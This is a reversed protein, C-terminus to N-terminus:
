TTQFRYTAQDEEERQYFESLAESNSGSKVTNQLTLSLSPVLPENEYLKPYQNKTEKPYALSCQIFVSSDWTPCNQDRTWGVQECDDWKSVIMM